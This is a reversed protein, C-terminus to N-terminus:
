SQNGIIRPRARRTSPLGTAGVVEGVVRARRRDVALEVEAV